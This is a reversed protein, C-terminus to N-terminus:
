KKLLEVRGLALAQGIIDDARVRELGQLALPEELYWWRAVGRWPKPQVFDLLLPLELPLLTARATDSELVKHM